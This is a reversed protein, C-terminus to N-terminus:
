EGKSGTAALEKLRINRFEIKMPPGHHLQFGLYGTKIRTADDEDVVDIMVHGNILHVLHNGRAIIHYQNWEGKRIKSQLEGPDGVSGVVEPKQGSRAIVKQGRLAIFRRMGAEYLIGSWQDGDELDAQYGKVDTWRKEGEGAVSRYQVGSNGGSLRFELKLEFDGVKKKRWLIYTTHELPRAITTEGILKGNEARWFKPDGDWGELDGGDFISVYGAEKERAEEAANTWCLTVAVLAFAAVCTPRTIALCWSNATSLLRRGARTKKTIQSTM